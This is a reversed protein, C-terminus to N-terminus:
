CEPANDVALAWIHGVPAAPLAHGHAVSVRVGTPRGFINLQEYTGGVPATEGPAHEPRQPLRGEPSNHGFAVVLICPPANIQILSRRTLSTVCL